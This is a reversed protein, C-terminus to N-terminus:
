QFRIGIVRSPKESQSEKRFIKYEKIKNGLEGVPFLVLFQVQLAFQYYWSTRM